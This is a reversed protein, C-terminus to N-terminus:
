VARSFMRRLDLRNGFGSGIANLTQMQFSKALMERTNFFFRKMHPATQHSESFLYEKDSWIEYLTFKEPQEPEQYLEISVCFPEKRVEDARLLAQERFSAIAEAKVVARTLLVVNM